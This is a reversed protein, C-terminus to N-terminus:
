RTQKNVQKQKDGWKNIKQRRNQLTLVMMAAVKDTKIMVLDQSSPEHHDGFFSHLLTEVLLISMFM